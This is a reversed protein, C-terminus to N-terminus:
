CNLLLVYLAVAMPSCSYVVGECHTCTCVHPRITEIEHFSYFCFSFVYSELWNLSFFVFYNRCFLMM